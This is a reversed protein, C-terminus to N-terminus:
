GSIIRKAAERCAELLLMGHEPYVEYCRKELEPRNLVPTVPHLFIDGYRNGYEDQFLFVLEARFVSAGYAVGDEMQFCHEEMLEEYRVVVQRM